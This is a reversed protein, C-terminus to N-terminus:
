RLRFSTAYDVVQGGRESDVPSHAPRPPRMRNHATAPKFRELLETIFAEVHERHIAVATRPMGRGDLFRDLRGVAASYTSLTAPSMRQAALHRRWSALLDALDAATDHTRASVTSSM